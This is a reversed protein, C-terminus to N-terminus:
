AMNLGLAASIGFLLFAVLLFAAWVIVTFVVPRNLWGTSWSLAPNAATEQRARHQFYMALPLVIPIVPSALTLARAAAGSPPLAPRTSM